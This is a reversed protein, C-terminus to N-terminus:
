SLKGGTLTLVRSAAARLRDEHTVAVITLGQQNLAKFLAVVEDATATDLNGTPEDCLLVRPSSFLARAIAVRQREGGSLRGPSRAAHAALGVRELAQRAQGELGGVRRASFRAPLLVNELASVGSLLHFSQFVFGVTENRFRSLAADDLGDLRLGAVTVQGRYGTDLGGLVHLLTSKGSGSRGVIAVFEGANVELSADDLVTLQGRAGDDYARVLHRAEIM